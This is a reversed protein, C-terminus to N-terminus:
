EMALLSIKSTNAPNEFTGPPYMTKEPQAPISPPAISPPSTGNLTAALTLSDSSLEVFDWDERELHKASVQTKDFYVNHETTVIQKDPWYM